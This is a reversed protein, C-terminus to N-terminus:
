LFVVKCSPQRHQDRKGNVQDYDGLDKRRDDANGVRQDSFQSVRFPCRCGIQSFLIEEAQSCNQGLLGQEVM